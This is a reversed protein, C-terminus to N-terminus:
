QEVTVTGSNIITNESPRYLVSVSAKRYIIIYDGNKANTFFAQGELKSTDTVFAVTPLEGEPLERLEAVEKLIRAQTQAPTEQEAVSLETRLADNQKRTEFAATKASGANVRAAEADSRLQQIQFFELVAIVSIGAILFLVLIGVVIGPWRTQSRRTHM